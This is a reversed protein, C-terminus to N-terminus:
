VAATCIRKPSPRRRRLRRLAHDAGASRGRPPTGHGALSGIRAPTASMVRAVDSWELLGTQVMSQHVVRLASELGVMGNAAAQWECAKHESPHRPTTPPWSTSRRRRRPGRARRACGRGPAAAPQGQVARRIRAGARRDAAPPAPHGRGHCRHRAEQGLPHHGGVGRDLPPVRAPALRCAGRAARRPRHDVGRRRRALRRPGARGLVTGENM